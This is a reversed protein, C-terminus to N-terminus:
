WRCTSLSRRGIALTISSGLRSLGGGAPCSRAVNGRGRERKREIDHFDWSHRPGGAKYRSFRTKRAFIRSFRAEKENFIRVFKPDSFSKVGWSREMSRETSSRHENFNLKKRFPNRKRPKNVLPSSEILSLSIYVLIFGTTFLYTPLYYNQM